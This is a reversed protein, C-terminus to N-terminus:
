LNVGLQNRTSTIIAEAVEVTKTGSDLTVIESDLGLVADRFNQHELM